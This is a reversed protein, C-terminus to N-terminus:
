IILLLKIIKINKNHFQSIEGFNFRAFMIYLFVIHAGIYLLFVCLSNRIWIGHTERQYKISQVGSNVKNLM